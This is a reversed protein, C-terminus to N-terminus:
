IMYCSDDYICQCYAISGDSYRYCRSRCSLAYDGTGAGFRLECFVQPSNNYVRCDWYECNAAFAPSATLVAAFLVFVAVARRFHFRRM